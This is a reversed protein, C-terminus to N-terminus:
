AGSVIKAMLKSLKPRKGLEMLIDNQKGVSKAARECFKALKPNVLAARKIDKVRDTSAKHTALNSLFGTVLDKESTNDLMWEAFDLAIGIYKKEEMHDCLHSGLGWTLGVLQNRNLKTKKMVGLGKEIIDRPKIPCKYQNFSLAMDRGVLGAIVEIKSQDGYKGGRCVGLVKAVMEWARRSPTIDFGLEYSGRGDMNEKAMACFEIIESAADGHAKIMYHAWEQATSEGDSLIIHCFRDLFAPDTFSNTLYGEFFNNACVISWGPPMVYQGVKHDYVLEFSCQNVDDQARLSEDLFLIGENLRPQLKEVLGYQKAPDKESTVLKQAEDWSLGGRPLESPPRYVTRGEEDKDPMGRIDSAELQSLRMNVIGLQNDIATQQVIASKGLGHRGWIMLTIGAERCIMIAEKITEIKAM